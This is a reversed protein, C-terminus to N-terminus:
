VSARGQKAYITITESDETPWHNNTDISIHIKRKKEMIRQHSKNQFRNQKHIKKETPQLIKRWDNAHILNM